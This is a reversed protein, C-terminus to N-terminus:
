KRAARLAWASLAEGIAKSNGSDAVAPSIAGVRVFMDLVEWNYAFPAVKFGLNRRVRYRKQRAAAGLDRDTGTAKLRHHMLSKVWDHLTTQPRSPCIFNTITYLKEHLAKYSVKCL